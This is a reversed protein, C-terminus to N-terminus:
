MAFSAALRTFITTAKAPLGMITAKVQQVQGKIKAVAETAM